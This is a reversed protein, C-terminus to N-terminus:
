TTSASAIVQPVLWDAVLPAAAWSYHVGDRMRDGFEGGPLEETWRDLEIRHFGPRDGVVESVIENLRDVRDPDNEGLDSWAVTPDDPDDLRVHPHTPWVVPAGTAALLDAIATVEGTFWRDFVPDGLHYWDGAFEREGLEFVGSTFVIVDPEARALIDPLQDHWRNCDGPLGWPRGWVRLATAAGGLPCGFPTHAEVAVQDVPERKNWSSFAPGLSWAVSDGILLVDIPEAVTADVTWGMAQDGPGVGARAPTHVPLVTVLLVVAGATVALGAALRPRPVRVRFRVPSEIVAYSLAAVALTVTVRAVFLRVPHGIGTREADLVLFIPWHYLYAGYSVKGIARLPRAGLVRAAPGGTTVALIVVATLTANVATRGRFLDASALSTSHWLALLGVLAATGAVALTRHAWPRVPAGSRERDRAAVFGFALVVGALLEGARTFTAYYVAGSNDGSGSMAWAAAFSALAVGAWGGAAVSRRGGLLRALAMLGGFGLPFGLYFQEEIALSWTHAVPSPDSFLLAYDGSAAIFRWNAVYALAALLDGRFTTSSGIELTAQVLAIGAITALAAPLLRRARREWFRRWSLRGSTSWEGLALVTILFGSLTFFSSVGLFGGSAWDFGQHFALVAALALARLGDLGPVYGLRARDAGPTSSAAPRDVGAARAHDGSRMTGPASSM